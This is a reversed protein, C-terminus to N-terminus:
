GWRTGILALVVFSMNFVFQVLVAGWVRGTAWVLAASTLGLILPTAWAEWTSGGTWAHTAVLTATSVVVATLLAPLRGAMRRVVSYATVLLVGTFFLGEILPAAVLLMGIDAWMAVDGSQATDFRPLAGSRGAAVAFWGQVLRLAIGFVLGYLVDVARLRLLPRPKARMFAFVVAVLMGVLSVASAVTSALESPNFSRIAAAVVLTLGWAVLAVALVTEDWPKATPGGVRWDRRVRVRAPNLESSSADTVM